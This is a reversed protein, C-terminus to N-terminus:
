DHGTFIRLIAETNQSIKSRFIQLIDIEFILNQISNMAFIHSAKWNPELTPHNFTGNRGPFDRRKRSIIQNTGNQSM